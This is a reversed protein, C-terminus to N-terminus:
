QVRRVTGHCRFIFLFCVREEDTGGFTFDKKGITAGIKTKYGWSEMKKVASQIEESTIYGAPAAIGVTDNRKLYPPTVVSGEINDSAIFTGPPLASVTLLGAASSIFKKRKM